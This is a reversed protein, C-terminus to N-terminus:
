ASARAMAEHQPTPAGNREDIRGQRREFRSMDPYQRCPAFREGNGDLRSAARILSRDENRLKRPDLMDQDFRIPTLVYEQARM